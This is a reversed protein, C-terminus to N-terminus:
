ENVKSWKKVPCEQDGWALKNLFIKRKSLNCGCMLCQSKNRDMYECSLCINFRNNIEEQTSKPMGANVHWWLAKFFRIIKTSIKM